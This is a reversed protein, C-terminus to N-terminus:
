EYNVKKCLAFFKNKLKAFHAKTISCACTSM